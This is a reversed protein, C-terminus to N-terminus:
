TWIKTNLGALDKPWSNPIWQKGPDAGTCSDTNSSWLSWCMLNCSDSYHLDVMIEMGASRARKALNLAYDLSYENGTWVRIRALNAGHNSLIKELPITQGNEKYRIGSNELTQLSSFDAGRWQIASVSALLSFLGVLLTFPAFM